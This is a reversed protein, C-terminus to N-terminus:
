EYLKDLTFIFENIWLISSRMKIAICDIIPSLIIWWECESITNELIAKREM